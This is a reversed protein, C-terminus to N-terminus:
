LRRNETQSLKLAEKFDFGGSSKPTFKTVFAEGVAAGLLVETFLNDTIGVWLPVATWKNAASDYKWAHERTCYNMREGDPTRPEPPHTAADIMTRIEVASLPPKFRLAANPVRPANERNECEIIVNVSMGPLLTRRDDNHVEMSVTYTTVGQVIEPHNRKHLIVGEFEATQKGEVRFRAQQGEDVHVIDTESVKANVRLRDLSPAILFLPPALAAIVTQGVDEFRKLVIGDIPSRIICREVRAETTNFQARALEAAAKAQEVAQEARQVLFRENNLSQQYRSQTIRENAVAQEYNSKAVTWELKPANGEKYLNDIREWNFQVQELAAKAQDWQAKAQATLVPLNAKQEELVVQADAVLSQTRMLEAVSRQHDADALEPDIKCIIQDKKVPDDHDVAMEIIKGTTECGVTVVSLPEVTGLTEITMVIRGSDIHVTTVDHNTENRGWASYAVGAGGILVLATIWKWYRM